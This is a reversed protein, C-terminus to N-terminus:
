GNQFPLQVRDHGPRWRLHCRWLRSSSYGDHIDNHTITWGTGTYITGTSVHLDHSIDLYEVSVDAALGGFYVPTDAAVPLDLGGRLTLSYGSRQGSVAAITYSDAGIVVSTYRILPTTAAGLRLLTTGQRAGTSVYAIPPQSNAYVPRGARQATTLRSTLTITTGSVSSIRYTTGDAFTLWGASIYGGIPSRTTITSAGTASSALTSAGGSFDYTANQADIGAATGGDNFTPERYGSTSGGIFQDGPVTQFSIEGYAGGEFFYLLPTEPFDYAPQNVSSGPASIM